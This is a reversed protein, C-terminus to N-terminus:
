PEVGRDYVDTRRTLERSLLRYNQDATDHVADLLKWKAERLDTLEQMKAFIESESIMARLATISTKAPNLGKLRLLEIAEAKRYDTKAEKFRIDALALEVKMYGLWQAWKNMEQTVERPTLEGIDQPLRPM